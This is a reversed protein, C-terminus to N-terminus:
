ETTLRYRVLVVSVNDIGGRANALSILHRAAEDLNAGFSRLTLAIDADSVQDSLGDSCLLLVDGLETRLEQTEIDVDAAIGLARTIVNKSFARRAEDPTYLGQRIADQVVSHDATVQQLQGARFLYLRSDGVHSITVYEPGCLALVVTTGMGACAPDSHASQYIANNAQAVANTCLYIAETGDDGAHASLPTEALAGCLEDIITRVAMRSAIEGARHGGMGDALVAIGMDERWAIQDENHERVLGTDTGGAFRMSTAM